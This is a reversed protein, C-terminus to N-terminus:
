TETASASSVSNEPENSISAQTATEDATLPVTTM